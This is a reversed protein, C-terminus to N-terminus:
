PKEELAAALDAWAAVDSEHTQSESLRRAAVEIRKLADREAKLAAIEDLLANIAAPSGPAGKKFKDM